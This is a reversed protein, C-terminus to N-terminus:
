QKSGCQGGRFTGYIDYTGYIDRTLPRSSLENSPVANDAGSPGMYTMHGMYTGHLHDAASNMAQFRMTRGPLDKKYQTHTHTHTHTHTRTHTDKYICVRVCERECARVCVTMLESARARVCVGYADRERVCVGSVGERVCALFTLVYRLGTYPSAPM